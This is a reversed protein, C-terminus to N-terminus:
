LHWIEIPKWDIVLESSAIEGNDDQYYYAGKPIVCRHLQTNTDRYFEEAREVTDYSYYGEYVHWFPGFNRDYSLDLEIEKNTRWKFYFHNKVPSRLCWKFWTRRFVKYVVKDELCFHVKPTKAFTLCM